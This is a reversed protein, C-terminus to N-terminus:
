SPSISFIVSRTRPQAKGTDFTSPTPKTSFDILGGQRVFQARRAQTDRSLVAHINVIVTYINSAIRDIQQDFVFNQDLQLPRLRDAPHMRSLADIIHRRGSQRNAVSNQYDEAPFGGNSLAHKVAPVSKIAHGTRSRHCTAETDRLWAAALITGVAASGAWGMHAIGNRNLVLRDVFAATAAFEKNQGKRAM